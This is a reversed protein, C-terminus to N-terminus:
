SKQPINAKMTCQIPKKDSRLRKFVSHRLHNDKTFELFAVECVLKPKLWHLIERSKIKEATPSKTTELKKFKEELNDLTEQTFGTGVKGIYQLKKNSDYLGLLLSSITRRPSESYGIIICDTTNLKKIKLWVKSRSGPYYKSNELKAMVGEYNKEIMVKWLDKGDKTFLNKEIKTGNKVTQNLIKKREILPLDTLIKGDKMLIDFVIYATKNGRQLLSFDPVNNKDLAVIEGDLICSKAKINKRFNLLEPFKSNLNLNNRSILNIDKNIYAIARYGDLKPEFIYNKNSLLDKTGIYANMAHILKM